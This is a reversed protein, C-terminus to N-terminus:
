IRLAMLARHLQRGRAEPRVGGGGLWAFRDQLHLLGGGVIRGQDVAAVARWNPRVAVHAFWPAIKAPMEFAACLTEGLAHEEGTRLARVELGTGIEPAAPE